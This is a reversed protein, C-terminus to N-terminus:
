SHDIQIDNPFPQGTGTELAAKLSLLFVAWKTSCHGLFDSVAQWNGHTFRVFTQDAEPQLLFIIESGVWGDPIDGSHTWRVLKDPILEAVTFQVATENFRFEITSGVAGAGSTESTWWTALGSDTTLAQYIAAPKAKIGVRHNIEAM